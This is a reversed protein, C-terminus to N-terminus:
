NLLETQHLKEIKQSAQVTQMKAGGVFWKTKKKIEFNGTEYNMVTQLRVHSM